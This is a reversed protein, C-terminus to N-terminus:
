LSEHEAPLAVRNQYFNFRSAFHQLYENILRCRRRTGAAVRRYLEDTPLTFYQKFDVLLEPVGEGAADLEPPVRELFQYRENKNQQIPKWIERGPPVVAKAAEQAGCLLINPLIKDAAVDGRRARFDQELDCDQTVIIAWAWQIEVLDREAGQLPAMERLRLQVVHSLIEVQRLETGAVSPAYKPVEM